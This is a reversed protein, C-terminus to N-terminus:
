FAFVAARLEGVQTFGAGDFLVGVYHHKNVPRVGEFGGFGGLFAGLGLKQDGFLAVAGGVANMEDEAVRICTKLFGRGVGPSFGILPLTTSYVIRSPRPKLWSM